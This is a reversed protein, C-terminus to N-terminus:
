RMCAFIIIYVLCSLTGITLCETYKSDQINLIIYVTYVVINYIIINNKCLMVNYM